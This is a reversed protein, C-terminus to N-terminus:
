ETKVKPFYFGPFDLLGELLKRFCPLLIPVATLCYGSAKTCLDPLNVFADIEGTKM